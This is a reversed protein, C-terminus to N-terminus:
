WRELENNYAQQAAEEAAARYSRHLERTESNYEEQSMEGNILAEFLHEEEKEIQREISMRQIGNILIHMNIGLGFVM